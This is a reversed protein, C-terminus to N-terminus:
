LSLGRGKYKSYDTFEDKFWNYVEEQGKGRNGLLSSIAYVGKRLLRNQQISSQRKIAEDLSKRLGNDMHHHVMEPHLNPYVKEETLMFAVREYMEREMLHGAWLNKLNDRSDKVLGNIVTHQEGLIKTVDPISNLYLGTKKSLTCSTGNDTYISKVEFGNETRTFYFGKANFFAIYDKPSKEYPAHMREAYKVYSGLAESEYRQRYIPAMAQYLKPFVMPLFIASTTLKTSNDTNGATLMELVTHNQRSFGTSVYEEMAKPFPLDGLRVPVTHRNSNAFSL